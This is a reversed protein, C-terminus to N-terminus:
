SPLAIPPQGPPALAPTRALVDFADHRVHNERMEHRLMEESVLGNEVCERLLGFFLREQNADPHAKYSGLFAYEGFLKRRARMLWGIPPFLRFREAPRWDVPLGTKWPQTKRRTTHLMKTRASLHDFDNWEPELLGLTARDEHKLCIWDSYDLRFEFMSRFQEETRWHTLKANDLLMVSSAMCKDIVGKTGSRSRCWIAKGQMDRSLLEWIDGVAFIDPDMIVARGRYDMLEPPMFRLPTFSQLDDNLWVREVGDRLYKQGEHQKLFPHDETNIVRVDFRENHKSNRRLAHEAVIAGLMQKPNTHIFVCHEKNM